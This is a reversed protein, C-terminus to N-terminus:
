DEGYKKNFELKLNNFKLERLSPVEKFLNSQVLIERFERLSDYNSLEGDLIMHDGNESDLVLKTLNLGLGNVDIRPSLEQLYFLFAFRKQPSLSFWINKEEKSLAEAKNIVSDLGVVGKPINFEKKLVSVVQKESENIEKNFKRINFFANIFFLALILFILVGTVILQVFITKKEREEVYTRNLNFDYTTELSLASSLSIISDNALNANAKFSINPTHILDSIGFPNCPMDFIKEVLNILGKVEIGAGMFLIKNFTAGQPLKSVNADILLKIDSFFSKLKAFNDPDDKSIKSIDFSQGFLSYFEIIGKSVFRVSKIQGEIIITACISHQDMHLIILNERKQPNVFKYLSFLELADVTVKTPFVKAKEFPLLYETIKDKKVAVALINAFDKKSDNIICDISADELSFPLLPEVEFPLILKIKNLDSFPLTLDKYVVLSTPLVAYLLDIKGLQSLLTKITEATREVHDQAPNTNSEIPKEVIKEIIRKKGVAKVLVIKVHTKTIQCAAIRQNLLFYGGIAEPLFINRMM